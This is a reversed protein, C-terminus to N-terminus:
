DLYHEAMYAAIIIMATGDGAITGATLEIPDGIAPGARLHRAWGYAVVATRIM